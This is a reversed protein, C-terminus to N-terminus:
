HQKIIVMRFKLLSQHISTRGGSLVAATPNKIAKRQQGRKKKTLGMSIITKRFQALVGPRSLPNIVSM